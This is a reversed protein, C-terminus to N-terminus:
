ITKFIELARNYDERNDIEIWQNSEEFHVAFNSNAFYINFLNEWNKILNEENKFFEECAKIITLRTQNQLKIIGIAEGKFHYNKLEEPLVARKDVLIRIYGQDDVMAKSCEIDTIEAPGVLFADTLNSEVFRKLINVDYMLDADFIMVDTTINKLGIMMSYTNGLRRFEENVSFSINLNPYKNELHNVIKEKEYGTVIHVNTIGCAEIKELHHDILAKGNIQLLCKPQNTVDAIRSGYGAALFLATTPNNM